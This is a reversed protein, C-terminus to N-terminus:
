GAAPAIFGRHPFVEAAKFSNDVILVQGLFVLLYAKRTVKAKKEEGSSKNIGMEDSSYYAQFNIDSTKPLKLSLKNGM